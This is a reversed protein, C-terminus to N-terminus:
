VVSLHENDECVLCQVNFVQSRAHYVSFDHVQSTIHYGSVSYVQSSTHNANVSSQYKNCMLYTRSSFSVVQLVEKLCLLYFSGVATGQVVILLDMSFPLVPCTVIVVSGAVMHFPILSSYPMIDSLFPGQIIRGDIHIDRFSRKRNHKQVLIKAYM